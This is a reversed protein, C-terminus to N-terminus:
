LSSAQKIVKKVRALGSGSLDEMRKELVKIFGAKNSAIVAPLTKESHQPVDKPRCSSLHKLLYPFIVENYKRNAAATIALASIASDVTIVSGADKAKKITDVHAFVADPNAKAAEALATMGGWVLRNNRSKLLKAFDDVYGGILKPEICGIEYLVKICDAQINKDKNWLNEVIERIGKKDKGAALDRALEQNPVEDRRNQSTALRDLISM